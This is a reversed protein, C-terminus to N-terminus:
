NFLSKNTAETLENIILFTETYLCEMKKKKKYFNTEGSYQKM